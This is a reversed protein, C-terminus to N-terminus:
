NAAVRRVHEGTQPDNAQIANLLAELAAAAFREATERRRRSRVVAFGSLFGLTLVWRTRMPACTALVASAGRAVMSAHADRGDRGLARASPLVTVRPDIAAVEGAPRRAWGTHNRHSVM